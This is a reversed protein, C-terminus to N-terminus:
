AVLLHMVQKLVDDHGDDRKDNVFIKGIVEYLAAFVGTMIWGSYGSFHLGVSTLANYLHIM